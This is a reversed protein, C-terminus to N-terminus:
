QDGSVLCVVAGYDANALIAALASAARHMGAPIGRQAAGKDAVWYAADTHYVRVTVEPTGRVASSHEVTEDIEGLLDLFLVQIEALRTAVQAPDKPRRTGLCWASVAPQSVPPRMLAGFERQSLGLVALRAQLDV